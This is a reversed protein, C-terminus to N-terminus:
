ESKARKKGRKEAFKAKAAEFEEKSISGNGDSDVREIMRGFRESGVEDATVKGDNNADRKEVMREARKQMREEAGEKAAAVLEEVSLGGDGNTDMAEFRALRHADIEAQSIQGDGNTDLEEFSVKAFGPGGARRAEAETAYGMSAAGVALIVAGAVLKQSFKSAVTM